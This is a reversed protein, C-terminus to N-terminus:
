PMAMAQWVNAVQNAAIAPGASSPVNQEMGTLKTIVECKLAVEGLREMSITEGVCGCNYHDCFDTIVKGTDYAKTMLTMDRASVFADKGKATVPVYRWFNPNASICHDGCGLAWYNQVKTVTKFVERTMKVANLGQGYQEVNSPIFYFYIQGTVFNDWLMNLVINNSRIHPLVTATWVCMSPNEPNAKVCDNNIFENPSTGRGPGYLNTVLKVAMELITLEGKYHGASAPSIIPAGDLMSWIYPQHFTKGMSGALSALRGHWSDAQATAAISGASCGSIFLEQGPSSGMGMNIFKRLVAQLITYGRFYTGDKGNKLKTGGVMQFEDVDVQGFWADSSCYGITAHTYGAFGGMKPDFMGSNSKAREWGKASVLTRSARSRGLCSKKDYCFFGGDIHFHWQMTSQKKVYLIAPSGDNCVALPDQMTLDEAVMYLGPQVHDWAFRHDKAIPGTFGQESSFTYNVTGLTTDIPGKIGTFEPNEPLDKKSVGVGGPGGGAKVGIKETNGEKILYNATELLKMGTTINNVKQLLREDEAPSMQRLNPKGGAAKARMSKMEQMMCTFKTEFNPRGFMKCPLNNFVFVGGPIYSYYDMLFSFYPEIVTKVMGMYAKHKETVEPLPNNQEFTNILCFSADDVEAHLEEPWLNNCSYSYVRCFSAGEYSMHKLYPMNSTCKTMDDWMVMAKSLSAMEAESSDATDISSEELKHVERLEKEFRSYFSGM